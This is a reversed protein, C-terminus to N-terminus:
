NQGVLYLGGFYRSSPPSPSDLIVALGSFMGNDSACASLLLPSDISICVCLVGSVSCLVGFM